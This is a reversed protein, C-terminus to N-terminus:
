ESKEIKTGCKGCYKIQKDYKAGCNPCYYIGKLNNDQIDETSQDQPIEDASDDSSQIQPEQDEQPLEQSPTNQPTEQSPMEELSAKRLRKKNVVRVGISFLLMIGFVASVIVLINLAQEFRTLHDQYAAVVSVMGGPNNLVDSAFEKSDVYREADIKNWLAYRFYGTSLVFLPTCINRLFDALAETKKATWKKNFIRVFWFTFLMYVICVLLSVILFTYRGFFGIDETDSLVANETDTKYIKITQTTHSGSVNLASIVFSNEGDELPVTALFGGNDNVPIENGDILVAAGFDTTGAIDFTAKNTYVASNNEPLRLSPPLLNVYVEIHKKFWVVGGQPINVDNFSWRVEISNSFEKFNISFFGEGALRVKEIPADAEYGSEDYSLPDDPSYLAIEALADRQTNYSIKGQLSSSYEGFDFTLIDDLQITETRVSSVNEGRRYSLEVTLETASPDYSAAYGTEDRGLEVYFDEGSGDTVAFIWEDGYYEMYEEWTVWVTYDTLDVEVDFGSPASMMNPNTYSFTGNAVATESEEIGEYDKYVSLVLSYNGYTSLDGIYFRAQIIEGLKGRGEGIERTGVIVDNEIVAASIVYEYMGEGGSVSFEASIYADGGAPQQFAFMDVSLPIMQVVDGYSALVGFPNLILLYLSAMLFLSITKKMSRNGELMLIRGRQWKGM